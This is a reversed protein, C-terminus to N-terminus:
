NYTAITQSIWWNNPLTPIKVQRFLTESYFVILITHTAKPSM